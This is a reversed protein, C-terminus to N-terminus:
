REISIKPNVAIERGKGLDFISRQSFKSGLELAMDRDSVCTVVDLVHM